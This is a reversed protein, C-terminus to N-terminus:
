VLVFLGLNLYYILIMHISLFMFCYWLYNSYLYIVFVVFRLISFVYLYNCNIHSKYIALCVAYMFLRRLCVIFLLICIFNCFWCINIENLSGIFYIVVAWFCFDNTFSSAWWYFWGSLLFQGLQLIISCIKFVTM